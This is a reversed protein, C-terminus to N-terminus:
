SDQWDVRFGTPGCGALRVFRGTAKLLPENSSQAPATKQFFILQAQISHKKVAQTESPGHGARQHLRTIAHVPTGEFVRAVEKVARGKAWDIVERVPNFSNKLNNFFGRTEESEYFGKELM